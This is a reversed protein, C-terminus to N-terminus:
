VAAQVIFFIPNWKERQLSAATKKTLGQFIYIEDGYTGIFPHTGRLM